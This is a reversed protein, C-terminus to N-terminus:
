PECGQASTQSQETTITPRNTLRGLYTTAVIAIVGDDPTEGKISPTVIRM